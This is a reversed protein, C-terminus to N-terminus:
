VGLHLASSIKGVAVCDQEQCCASVQMPSQQPRAQRAKEQWGKDSQAQKILEKFADSDRAAASSSAASGPPRRRPDSKAPVNPRFTQM